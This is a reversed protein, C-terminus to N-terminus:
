GRHVMREVHSLASAAAHWIAFAGVALFAVFEPWRHVLAFRAAAEVMVYGLDAMLGCITMSAAVRVRRHRRNAVTQAGRPFPPPSIKPFNSPTDAKRTWGLLFVGM